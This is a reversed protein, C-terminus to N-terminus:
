PMVQPTVSPDRLVGTQCGMTSTFTPSYYFFTEKSGGANVAYYTLIQFHYKGLGDPFIHTPRDFDVATVTYESTEGKHLVGADIFTQVWADEPITEGWQIIRYGSENNPYSNNDDWSLKVANPHGDMSYAEDCAQSPANLIHPPNDKATYVGNEDQNSPQTFGETVTITGACNPISFITNESSYVFDTLNDIATQPLGSNDIGALAQQTARSDSEEKTYPRAFYAQVMISNIINVGDLLVTTPKDKEVYSMVVTYGELYPKYYTLLFGTENTPYANTDKWKLQVANPYGDIPAPTFCIDTIENPPNKPLTESDYSKRLISPNKSHPESDNSEQIIPPNGMTKLSLNLMILVFVTFIFMVIGLALIFLKINKNM